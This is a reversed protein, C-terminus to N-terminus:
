TLRCLLVIITRRDLVMEVGASTLSICKPSARIPCHHFREGGMATAWTRNRSRADYTPQTQQQNEDRGWPNKKRTRHNAERWLFWCKLNLGFILAVPKHAKSNLTMRVLYPQNNNSHITNGSFVVWLALVSDKKINTSKSQNIGISQFAQSQRYGRQIEERERKLNLHRTESRRLM